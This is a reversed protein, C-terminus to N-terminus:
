NMQEDVISRIKDGLAKGQFGQEILQETLRKDWEFKLLFVIKNTKNPDSLFFFNIDSKDLDTTPLKKIFDIPHMDIRKMEFLLDVSKCLKTPFGLKFLVDGPKEQTDDIMTAILSSLSENGTMNDLIKHREKLKIGILVEPLLNTAILIEVFQFLDKSKNFATTFENVIRERKIHLTPDRRIANLTDEHIKFDFRSAFRVVRLKRLSDEAFREAPNGICRVIGNELDQIGGVLDIIENTNLNMFLGNITLDRRNVDEEITVGLVVKTDKNNGTNASIDARFTAIEIDESMQAVVVGFDVGRLECRINSAKLMSMITDPMAGTCVDFDKPEMGIFSDRVCGGVLFLDQENKNFVSQLTRIDQPLFSLLLETAQEKTNIKM